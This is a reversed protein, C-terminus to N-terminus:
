TMNRETLVKDTQQTILNNIIIM